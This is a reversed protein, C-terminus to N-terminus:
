SKGIDAEMGGVMAYTDQPVEGDGLHTITGLLGGDELQRQELLDEVLQERERPDRSIAGVLQYAQAVMNQQSPQDDIDV